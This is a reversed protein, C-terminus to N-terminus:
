CPLRRATIIPLVPIVGFIAFLGTFRALPKPFASLGGSERAVDIGLREVIYHLADIWVAFLHPPLVLVTLDGM